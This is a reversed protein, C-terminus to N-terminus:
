FTLGTLPWQRNEHSSFKSGSISIRSQNLLYELIPLNPTHDVLKICGGQPSRPLNAGLCVIERLQETKHTHRQVGMKSVSSDSNHRHNANTILASRCLEGVTLSHFTTRLPTQGTGCPPASGAPARCSAQIAQKYLDVKICLTEPGPPARPPSPKSNMDPIRALLIGQTHYWSM